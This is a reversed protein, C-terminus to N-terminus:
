EDAGPGEAWALFYYSAIGATVFSLILMQKQSLGLISVQWFARNLFGLGILVLTAGAIIRLNTPYNVKASKV